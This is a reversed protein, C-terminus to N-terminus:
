LFIVICSLRLHRDVLIETKEHCNYTAIDLTVDLSPKFISGGVRFLKELKDLYMPIYM